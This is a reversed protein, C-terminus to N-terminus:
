ILSVLYAASILTILAGSFKTYLLFSKGPLASRKMEPDRTVVWYNLMAFIPTFVFALITALDVLGALNKQFYGTLLSSLAMLLLLWVYM